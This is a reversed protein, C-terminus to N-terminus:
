SSADVLFRLCAHILDFDSTLKTFGSVISTDVLLRLHTRIKTVNAWLYSGSPLHELFEAEITNASVLSEAALLSLALM